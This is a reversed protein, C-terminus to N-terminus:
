SYTGTEYFTQIPRNRGIEWIFVKGAEGTIFIHEYIPHTILTFINTCLYEEDKTYEITQIV